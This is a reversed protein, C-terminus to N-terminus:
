VDKFSEVFMNFNYKEETTDYVAFCVNDFYSLDKLAKKFVSAITAPFNGFAGCGWAGLILNRNNNDAAVELIKKIRSNIIHNVKKVEGLKLYNLNPAPSTIVSALIPEDLLNYNIDKFIPVLPSYIIDDSYLGSQLKMNNLYFNEQSLLCPYLASCRAIDEEQAQAGHLWGGGPNTASAFNLIAINKMDQNLRLVSAIASENTVTIKTDCKLWTKSIIDSYSIYNSKSLDLDNKLSLKNVNDTYTKTNSVASDIIEKLLIEKDNLFYSKNEIISLTDRAIEVNRKRLPVLSEGHTKFM